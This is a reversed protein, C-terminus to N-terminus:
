AVERRRNVSPQRSIPMVNTTAFPPLSPVSGAGAEAVGDCLSRAAEVVEGPEISHLCANHGQPCISKYCYRCPVDQFLVRSPVSWPTHQPNTLAYLDVVPTGLAAAIHVPGSNNSVLVAARSILAAFTGLDLRGALAHVAAGPPALSCVADVIGEESASGTVLVPCGQQAHWIRVVEAFMQPPYRRSAASAGPHMVIFRQKTGIGMDSLLHEAAGYAGAPVKFGLQVDDTRAGIEAVLDIQRQAEHRIPDRPDSEAIWDTLLHYPNERCHALRLPIGALHCMLAAPLPSQSYVTFIVAADFARAALAEILTRDAQADAAQQKMWPPDYRIVEDIEPVFQAVAAGAGSALLTIRRGRASSKIARLAPTTMLVDGLNDLRVCLVNRASQWQSGHDSM